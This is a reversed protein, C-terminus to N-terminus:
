GNRQLTVSDTADHDPKLAYGFRTSGLFQMTKFGIVFGKRGGDDIHIMDIRYMEMDITTVSGNIFIV